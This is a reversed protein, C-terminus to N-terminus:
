DSSEQFIKVSLPSASDLHLDRQPFPITIGAKQLAENLHFRLESQISRRKPFDSPRINYYVDFVLASDGFDAFYVGFSQDKLMGPFSRLLEECINKFNQVDSGYAIGITLKQFVGDTLTWNTLKEEIFTKNPVIVLANQLTRVHTARVGLMEVQGLVDGVEIYDGVRMPREIRVLLGSIFNSVLNQSGFGVGVAIAGGFVTFITIPIHLIKLTILSMILLFSYFILRRLGQRTGIEIELRSLIRRDILNSSIKSTFFGLAFFVVGALITGLTIGHKDIEFLQIRLVWEIWQNLEAITM